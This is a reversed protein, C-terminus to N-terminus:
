RAVFGSVLDTLLITGFLAVVILFLIAVLRDGFGTRGDANDTTPSASTAPPAAILAAETRAIPQM